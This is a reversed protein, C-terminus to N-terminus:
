ISNDDFVSSLEFIQIGKQDTAPTCLFHSPELPVPVEQQKKSRAQSSNKTRNTREDRRGRGQSNTWQGMGSGEQKEGNKGQGLEGGEQRVGNKGYGM